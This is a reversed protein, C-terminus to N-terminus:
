ATTKATNVLLRAVYLIPAYLVVLVAATFLRLTWRSFSSLYM